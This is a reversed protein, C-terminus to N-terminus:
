RIKRVADMLRAVRRSDIRASHPKVQREGSVREGKKLSTGVIAGDAYKMLTGANRFDLGSGIIVPVDVSAKAEALAESKPSDATWRGTVIIADAGEREAKRASEAITIQKDLMEAHKVHIDAFIMVDEAGLKRRYEIVKQPQARIIGFDTRVSDVFVPVRIFRAGTTKAISLAAMYDNWLVSVGFATHANRKLEVGLYTMAAVTEPGVFIKHPVDYNNEIIVGNIGGRKFARLDKEAYKLINSLGGFDNYGFLPAFHLAGIIPKRVGFIEKLMTLGRKYSM